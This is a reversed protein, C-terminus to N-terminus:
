LKQPVFTEIEEASIPKSFFYGQIFDANFAKLKDYQWKYEVGEVTLKMGLSHVLNTINQIFSERGDTLYTDVMSKDIKVTEVPLYTLYSLSSYGTGFDDLALKVGIRDLSNFLELANEKGGMFLSETIEIHVFESPVDYNKLLSELYNVYEKDGIQGASYNIGVSHIEMGNKRWLAIQKIVKETVIRGIKAVHGDAEAVPIFLGPSVKSDKLRVLAEYGHILGTKADIQPQYLVTFGDNKCAEDVIKSIRSNETIKKKMEDSYFVYKGRGVAKAENLAIEVNSLYDDITRYNPNSNVIGINTKIFIETGYYTIPSSLVQRFYYIDPSSMNLHGDEYILIFKDGTFRAAFCKNMKRFGSLRAALEKLVADGCYHSNFDNISKFDFVDILLVAFDKKRAIVKKLYNQLWIRNPLNTLFDRKFAKLLSYSFDGLVLLLMIFSVIIILWYVSIESLNDTFKQPKNVFEYNEPLVNKRFGFKKFQKYDFYFKSNLKSFPVLKEASEEGNLFSAVTEACEEGLLKYDVSKGGFFRYGVGYKDKAFVPIDAMLSLYDANDRISYKNGQSDESASLFLIISDRKLQSVIKGLQERTLDSANIGKFAFGGFQERLDFFEKKDAQGAKTGDYIGYITSAYPNFKVAAELSEKMTTYAMIGSVLKDEVASIAHNADNTSIFFLPIDKFIQNRYKEAFRLVWDDTLIVADYKPSKQVKYELLSTYLKLNEDFHQLELPEVEPMIQKKRLTSNIGVIEDANSESFVGFSSLVLVRKSYLREDPSHEKELKISLFVNNLISVIGFIIGFLALFIFTFRLFRRLRLM